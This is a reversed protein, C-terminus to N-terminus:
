MIKPLSARTKCWSVGTKLYVPIKDEDDEEPPTDTEDEDEQQLTDSPLSLLKELCKIM